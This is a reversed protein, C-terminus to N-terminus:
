LLFRTKGNDLTHTQVNMTCMESWARHLTDNINTYLGHIKMGCPPPHNIHLCYRSRQHRSKTVVVVFVCIIIIFISSSGVAVYALMILYCNSSHSYQLRHFSRIIPMTRCCSKLNINFPKPYHYQRVQAMELRRYLPM